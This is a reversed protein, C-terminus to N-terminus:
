GRKEIEKGGQGKEKTVHKEKGKTKRKKSGEKKREM